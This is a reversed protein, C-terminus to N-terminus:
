SNQGGSQGTRSQVCWPPEGSRIRQYTEQRVELVDWRDYERIIKDQRENLTINHKCSFTMLVDQLEGLELLLPEAVEATSCRAISRLIEDLESDLLQRDEDSLSVPDWCAERQQLLNLSKTM